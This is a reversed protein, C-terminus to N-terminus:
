NSEKKEKLIKMEENLSNLEKKIDDASLNEDAESSFADNICSPDSDKEGKWHCGKKGEKNKKWEKGTVNEKKKTLVVKVKRV